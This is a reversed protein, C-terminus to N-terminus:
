ACSGTAAVAKVKENAGITEGAILGLTVAKLYGGVYGGLPGGEIGGTCSGAAYLGPLPAGDHGTVRAQADIEIGGMTYSIGAALPIAYFPAKAVPAVGVRPGSGRSEGFMRGSSRPPVLREGQDAAVARNYDAVTAALAAAPVDITAALAALDPAVILTGGASVLQPNPPVLEARGTTDWIAQDFVLTAALPDASRALANSHAIGGLGEDLFRRGARDVMIGGGILTDMTPYPWLGPNTLSDRSLMHGYFATADTLRAGAEEAMILADGAGSGANRQTLGEPRSSIFRRVLDPNAQFGGDALLVSAAALELTNGGQEAAVGVCRRGDLRLRRARTDLMLTGGRRKLNAVLAQLVVDPGRGKWDLGPSLTRPPALMWRNKGHIPVKIIRAGESRLWQMSRGATAALLDALAPAAYGETDVEIAQRLVAPESHPDTHAVNLVGTAIRSNCFYREDTGKELVVVRCGLAAARNAATLGAIGAGVVVLDADINM